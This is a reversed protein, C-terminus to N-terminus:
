EDNNTKFATWKPELNIDNVINYDKLGAKVCTCSTHSIANCCDIGCASELSATKRSLTCACLVCHEDLRNSTYGDKTANSSNFPCTACIVRRRIIEKQQDEPLMDYEMRVQNFIGELIKDGQSIM